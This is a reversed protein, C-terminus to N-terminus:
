FALYADLDTLLYEQPDWARQDTLWPVAEM